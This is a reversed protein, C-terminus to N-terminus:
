RMPPLLALGGRDISAGESTAPGEAAAVVAPAALAHGIPSVMVPVAISLLIASLAILCTLLRRM